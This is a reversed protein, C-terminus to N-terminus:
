LYQVVFADIKFQINASLQINPQAADQQQVRERVENWFQPGAALLAPEGAGDHRYITEYLGDRNTEDAAEVVLEGGVRVLKVKGPISRKLPIMSFKMRDKGNSYATKM